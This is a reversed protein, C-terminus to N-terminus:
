IRSRDSFVMLRRKSLPVSLDRMLALLVEAAEDTAVALKDSVNNM